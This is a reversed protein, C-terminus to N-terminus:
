HDARVKLDKADVKEGVGDFALADVKKGDVPLGVRIPDAHITSGYADRAKVTWWADSSPLKTIRVAPPSNSDAVVHYRAISYPDSGSLLQYGVANQSEKCTLIVGNPDDAPLSPDHSKLLTVPEPLRGPYQSQSFFDMAGNQTSGSWLFYYVGPASALQLNKGPGAVSWYAGGVLGGNFRNMDSGTLSNRYWDTVGIHDFPMRVWLIDSCPPPEVLHSTHTGYYFDIWCQEGDVSSALFRQVPELWSAWAAVTDFAELTGAFLRYMAQDVPLTSGGELTRCGGELDTVRNVAYRADRYMENLRIGADLAPDFGTSFGITQIAQRYDPAVASLYAMIMDGYKYYTRKAPRAATGTDPTYGSPFDIVNAANTWAPGGDWPQGAAGNICDGGGFYIVTPKNADFPPNELKLTSPGFYPVVVVKVTDPLSAQQGDSVLLQIQCEQIQDTQVFGGVFPTATQVGAIVLPPGSIQTWAYTLSGSHDPDYSKTGDLQLVQQAAYRSSGAEAVPPENAFADRGGLGGIGALIFVVILFVTHKRITNM